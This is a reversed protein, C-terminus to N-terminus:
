QQKTPPHTTNDRVDDFDVYVREPKGYINEQSIMSPVTVVHQNQSTVPSVSVYDFATKSEAASLLSNAVPQATHKVTESFSKTERTVKTETDTDERARYTDRRQQQCPTGTQGFRRKGDHAVNSGRLLYVCEMERGVKERV